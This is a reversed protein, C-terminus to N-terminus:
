RWIPFAWVGPTVPVPSAKGSALNVIYPRPGDSNTVKMMLVKEGDPSPTPFNFDRLGDFLKRTDNGNADCTMWVRDEGHFLIM